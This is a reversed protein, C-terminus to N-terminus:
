IGASSADRGDSQGECSIWRELLAGNQPQHDGHLVRGGGGGRARCNRAMSRDVSETSMIDSSRPVSNCVPWSASIWETDPDAEAVHLAWIHILELGTSIDRNGEILASSVYLPHLVILICFAAFLVSRRISWSTTFCSSRIMDLLCPAVASAEPHMAMCKM